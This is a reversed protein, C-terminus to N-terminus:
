SFCPVFKLHYIFYWDDNNKLCLPNLTLWNKMAIDMLQLAASSAVLVHTRLTWLWQRFSM